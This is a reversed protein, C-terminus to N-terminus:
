RAAARAKALAEAGGAIDLLETTIAEQRARNYSLSLDEAL